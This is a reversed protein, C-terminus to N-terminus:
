IAIEARLLGVSANSLAPDGSPNVIYQYSPQVSLWDTVQLKYTIEIATENKKFGVNRSLYDKSFSARALALGFEDDERGSFIGNAHVGAGIYNKAELAKSAQTVGFQLFGGMSGGAWSAFPQDIVLYGGSLGQKGGSVAAKSHRWLGFKYATEDSVWAGEAIYMYGEASKLQRTAPDGDYGAMRFSINEDFQFAVRTALSAQPFLSTPVNASIEPGIGFSSNTFLGGYESVDFESNLDHSGLLVSFRDDMFRQEIWLQQLRTRNGDAINSATQFDGIHTASPDNGQDVLSEIFITGNDWWGLAGTDVTVDLMGSAHNVTGQKLGGSFNKVSEGAYSIETTIPSVSEEAVAPMSILLGMCGWIVGQRSTSTREFFNM